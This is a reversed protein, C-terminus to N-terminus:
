PSQPLESDELPRCLVKLDLDEHLPLARQSLQKLQRSIDSSHPLPPLLPLVSETPAPPSLRLKNALGQDANPTIAVAMSGGLNEGGGDLARFFGMIVGLDNQRQFQDIEEAIDLRENALQEVEERYQAVHDVLLDYTDLLLNHFRGARTLGRVRQGAFVRRRINASEYLWVDHFLREELGTLKFFDHILADDKLLIYIRILDFGIRNELTAASQHLRADYDRIDDEILKRFGFYRAALERKVELALASDFDHQM